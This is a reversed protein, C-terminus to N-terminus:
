RLGTALIAAALQELVNQQLAVVDSDTAVAGTQRFAGRDRRMAQTPDGPVILWDADLTALGEAAVDLRSVNIVLRYAPKATQPEATILADPRGIALRATVLDTAGLSLRSAWRGQHSKEIVSGRRVVIDDTDLYDPLAIRAVAIVTTRGNLPPQAPGNAPAALVYLTLPPSSCSSLTLVALM